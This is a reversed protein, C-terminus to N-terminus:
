AVKAKGDQYSLKKGIKDEVARRLEAGSPMTVKSGRRRRSEVEDRIEDLAEDIDRGPDNPLGLAPEDYVEEGAAKHVVPHNRKNIQKILWPKAPSAFFSLSLAVGIICYFYV